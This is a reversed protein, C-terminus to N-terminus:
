LSLGFISFSVAQGPSRTQTEMSNGDVSGKSLECHVWLLGWPVSKSEIGSRWWLHFLVLCIGLYCCDVYWIICSLTALEPHYNLEDFAGETDLVESRHSRRKGDRSGSARM